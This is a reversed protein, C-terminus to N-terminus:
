PDMLVPHAADLPQVANDILVPSGNHLKIQGSTVVVDGAALGTLVAVQDGRTPGTTIFKQEAFLDPAGKAAAKRHVVVFVSEGYSNYAIATQPLTIHREPSGADIALTAFMGPRLLRGPNALAARVQVNRSNPDVAPNIAVIRGPFSRGKYADVTVAVDLGVRIRALDQQPLYFDAYLTDLAQLGVVTTGAALYQGLDVARIGLTGTFPARLTKQDVVAQQAAVQAEDNKLTAADADITAQSVAQARFQKRDRDYTIRALVATAQLAHLRAVDDDDRLRLLLQGKQVDAGSHFGIATVLGAVELSLNAGQVAALSGVADIAPHWPQYGATTTSVTQPPNAFSALVHKIIHAKFVQFGFVAGLVVGVAVLMIIMRKIM